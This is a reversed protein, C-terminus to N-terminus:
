AVRRSDDPPPALGAASRSEPENRQARRTSRPGPTTSAVPLAPGADGQEPRSPTSLGPNSRREPENPEQSLPMEAMAQAPVASARAEDQLAELTRLARYFEALARGRYRLL